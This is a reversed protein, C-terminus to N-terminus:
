LWYFVHISALKPLMRRLGDRCDAVPMGLPPQWFTLLGPHNVEEFLLRSASETSDVLTDAHYETAVAIGCQWAMAAIRRLDAVIAGREAATAKASAIGGAWVRILPTDLEAATALVDAFKLGHDESYGARYYSGYASVAIGAAACKARVASAQKLNGHPVHIDGGWEIADIGAASAEAIIRDCDLQRFSVSVLGSTFM